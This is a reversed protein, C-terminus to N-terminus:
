KSTVLGVSKMANKDTNSAVMMQSTQRSHCFSRAAIKGSEELCCIYSAPVRSCLVPCICAPKNPLRVCTPTYRSCGNSPPRTNVLEARLMRYTAWWKTSSKVDSELAQLRGEITDVKETLLDIKRSHEQLQQSHRTLIRTHENLIQTHEELTRSHEGLIGTHEDLTAEIRDFHDNIVEFMPTVSEVVINGIDAIDQKTLAM